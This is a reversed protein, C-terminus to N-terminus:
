EEGGAAPPTLDYIRLEDGRQRKMAALSAYGMKTPRTVGNPMVRTVKDGLVLYVLKKTNLKAFEAAEKIQQFRGAGGSRPTTLFADPVGHGNHGQYHKGPQWGQPAWSQGTQWQRGGWGQWDRSHYGEWDAYDDPGFVMVSREQLKSLWEEPFTAGAFPDILSTDVEIKKSKEDGELLAGVSRKVPFTVQLEPVAIVDTLRLDMFSFGTWMRWSSHPQPSSVRGIVGYLRVARKEDADDTSSFFAAMDVHSHIDMVHVYAGENDFTWTDDVRVSAGSVDQPPVELHWEGSVKHRYIRVLAEAKRTKAVERFFAVISRLVEWPVKPTSLLLGENLPMLPLPILPEGELAEVVVGVPTKRAVRVGDATLLYTIKKPLTSLDMEESYFRWECFIARLEPPIEEPTLPAVPAETPLPLLAQNGKKTM